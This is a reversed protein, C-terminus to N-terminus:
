DEEIFWTQTSYKGINWELEECPTNRQIVGLIRGLRKQSSLGDCDFNHVLDKATFFEISKSERYDNLFEIINKINDVNATENETWEIIYKYKEDDM